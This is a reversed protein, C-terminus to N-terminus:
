GRSSFSRSWGARSRAGPQGTPSCRAARTIEGNPEWDPDFDPSLCKIAIYSSLVGVIEDEWLKDVYAALVEPEKLPSPM